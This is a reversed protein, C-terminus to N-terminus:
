PSSHFFCKSLSEAHLRRLVTRNAGRSYVSEPDDPHIDNMFQDASCHIMEHLVTGNDPHNKDKNLLVFNDFGRIGTLEGQSTATSTTSKLHCFIM